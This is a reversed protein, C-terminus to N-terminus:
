GAAKGNMKDSSRHWFVFKYQMWSVIGFLGEDAFYGEGMANYIAFYGLGGPSPLAITLKTDQAFASSSVFLAAAAAAAM